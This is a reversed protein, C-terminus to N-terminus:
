LILMAIFKGIAYAIGAAISGAVLMETGGLLWHRKTVFVRLAGVTFLAVGTAAASILLINQTAGSFILFPLVPLSGAFVFAFFTLVPAKIESKSQTPLELEYKMMFDIWFPKNKKIIGMLAVADGRTYGRNQLISIVEEAEREPIERVEREERKRENIVLARESRSGLFNSAAMSFGDAFLSAFGLIILADSSLAAGAVGAVVAFTTIIGDNAAYVIDKIYAAIGREHHETHM